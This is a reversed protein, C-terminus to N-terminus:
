SRRAVAKQKLVRVVIFIVLGVIALFCLGGAIHFGTQAHPLMEEAHNLTQIHQHEERAIERAENKIWELSARKDSTGAFAIFADTMNAVEDPTVTVIQRRDLNSTISAEGPVEVVFNPTSVVCGAVGDLLTPARIDHNATTGNRCNVFAKLGKKRGPIVMVAANGVKWLIEKEYLTPRFQCLQKMADLDHVYLAALCGGKPNKALIGANCARLGGVVKCADVEEESLEEFANLERNVALFPKDVSLELYNGMTGNAPIPLPHFRYLTYDIDEILPVHILLKVNGVADTTFSVDAGVLDSLTMYLPKMRLRAAKEEIQKLAGMLEEAGFLRVDIRKDMLVSCFAEGKDVFGRVLRGLHYSILSLHQKREITNLYKQIDGVLTALREIAEAEKEIARSNEMVHAAIIRSQRRLDFVESQIAHVEYLAYTSLGISVLAGLGAQRKFQEHEGHAFLHHPNEKDGMKVDIEESCKVLDCAFELTQGAVLIEEKIDNHLVRFFPTFQDGEHGQDRLRYTDNGRGPVAETYLPLLRDHIREALSNLRQIESSVSLEVGIHATDVIRAYDNIRSFSLTMEQANMRPPVGSALLLRTDTSVLILLLIRIM